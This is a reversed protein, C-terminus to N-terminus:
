IGKGLFRSKKVGFTLFSQNNLELVYFIDRKKAGTRENKTRSEDRKYKQM